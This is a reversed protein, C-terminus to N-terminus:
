QEVIYDFHQFLIRRSERTARPSMNFAYALSRDFTERDLWIKCQMVGKKCHIHIPENSENADFFLRWGLLLLITPM